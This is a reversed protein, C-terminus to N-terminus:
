YCMVVQGDMLYSPGTMVRLPLSELWLSLPLLLCGIQQLLWENAWPSVGGGAVYFDKTSNARSWIAIGIYLAFTIGVIIFTWTQVSM